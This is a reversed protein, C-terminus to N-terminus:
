GHLLWSLPCYQPLCFTYMIGKRASYSDFLYGHYSVPPQFKGQPIFFFHSYWTTLLTLVKLVKNGSTAGSTKMIAVEVQSFRWQRWHHFIHWWPSVTHCFVWRVFRVLCKDWKGCHVMWFLFTCMETRFPANHSISCTSQPIQWNQRNCICFMNHVWLVRWVFKLSVLSWGM